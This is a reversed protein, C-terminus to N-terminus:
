WTPWPFLVPFIRVEPAHWFEERHLWEWVKNASLPATHGPSYAPQTGNDAFHKLRHEAAATALLIPSSSGHYRLRRDLLRNGKEDPNLETLMLRKGLTDITRDLEAEYPDKDSSEVSV